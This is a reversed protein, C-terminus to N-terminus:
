ATTEGVVKETVEETKETSDVMPPEPVFAIPAESCPPLQLVWLAGTYVRASVLSETKTVPLRRLAGGLHEEFVEFSADEPLGLRKAAESLVRNATQSRVRGIYQVPADWAANFFKVSVTMEDQNKVSVIV